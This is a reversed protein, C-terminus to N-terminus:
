PPSRHARRLVAIDGFFHGVSRLTHEEYGPV